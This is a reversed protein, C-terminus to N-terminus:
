DTKNNRKSYQLSSRSSRIRSQLGSYRFDASGSVAVAGIAIGAVAGGSLGCDATSGVIDEYIATLTVHGPVPTIIYERVTCNVHKTETVATFTPPFSTSRMTKLPLPRQLKAPFIIESITTRPTKGFTFSATTTKM